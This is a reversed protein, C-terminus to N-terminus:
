ERISILVSHTSHDEDISIELRYTGTTWGKTSLNFVYQDAGSDYRFLDGTNAAGTPEADVEEEVTGEVTESVKYVNLHATADTVFAGERDKLQFKVPITRGAKFVSSGDANIPQLVGGFEYRLGIVLTDTGAGSVPEDLFTTPLDPGILGDAQVTFYVTPWGVLNARYRFPGPLLRHTHTDPPGFPEYDLLQYTGEELGSADVTIAYGNVTLTSGGRGALCGDLDAAYDLAGDAGVTFTVGPWSISRSRFHFNGPLLRHTHVGPSAPVDYGILEYTCGSDLASADVTIAYGNVTLTSGGRGALCGDLDAAYDLTGDTGVTFWVGPWEISDARLRYTGAPLQYNRTGPAGFADQGLLQYQAGGDLASSDITITYADARAPGATALALGVVTAMLWM